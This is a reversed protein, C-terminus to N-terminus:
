GSTKNKKYDNRYSISFIFQKYLFPNHFSGRRTLLLGNPSRVKMARSYKNKENLRNFFAETPQRVKSVATSFLENFARDAQKLEESQGKLIKVPTLMEIQQSAKKKPNFYEFDSYIKDAFFRKVMFKM